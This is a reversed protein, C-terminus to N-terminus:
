SFGKSKEQFFNASVLSSDFCLVLELHVIKCTFNRLQRRIVSVFESVHFIKIKLSSDDPLQFVSADSIDMLEVAGNNVLSLLHSLIHLILLM